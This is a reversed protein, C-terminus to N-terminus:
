RISVFQPLLISEKSVGVDTFSRIVPHTRRVRHTLIRYILEGGETHSYTTDCSNQSRSRSQKSEFVLLFVFCSFIKSFRSLFESFRSNQARMRELILINM